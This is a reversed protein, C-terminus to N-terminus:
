KSGPERSEDCVSTRKPWTDRPTSSIEGASIEPKWRPFWTWFICIQNTTEVGRFFILWTPNGNRFVFFTEFWWGSIYWSGDLVMWSGDRIILWKFATFWGLPITYWMSFLWVNQITQHWKHIGCWECFVAWLCRLPHYFWDDNKPFKGTFKPLKGFWPITYPFAWGPAGSGFSRWGDITVM